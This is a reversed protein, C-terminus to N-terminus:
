GTRKSPRTTPTIAELLEEGLSRGAEAPLVHFVTPSGPFGSHRFRIGLESILTNGHCLVYGGDVPPRNSKEPSAAAPVALMTFVVAGLCVLAIAKTRM